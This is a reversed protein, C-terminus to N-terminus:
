EGLEERVNVFFAHAYPARGAPVEEAIFRLDKMIKGTKDMIRPYFLWSVGGSETKLLLVNRGEALEIQVKRESVTTSGGTTKCAAIEKGNLWLRLSGEARFHLVAQRDEPSVITTAAFAIMERLPNSIPDLRPPKICYGLDVYYGAVRRWGIKGGDKGAYTAKFSLGKEPPYMKDFGKNGFPGIVAWDAAVAGSKKVYGLTVEKDRSSWKPLGRVKEPCEIIKEQCFLLREADNVEELVGRRNESDALLHVNNRIRMCARKLAETDSKTYNLLAVRTNAARMRAVTKLIDTKGGAPPEGEVFDMKLSAEGREDYVFDVWAIRNVSDFASLTGGDVGVPYRGPPCYVYLRSELGPLGAAEVSLAKKAFDGKVSMTTVSNWVVEPEQPLPRVLVFDVDHRPPCPVETRLWGDGGVQATRSAMSNVDLLLLKPGAIGLAKANIEFVERSGQKNRNCLTALTQGPRAYLIQWLEEDRRSVFNTYDYHWPHHVQSRKVKFIWLPNHYKKWMTANRHTATHHYLHFSVTGCRRLMQQYIRPSAADTPSNGGVILSFDRGYFLSNFYLDCVIPSPYGANGEGSIVWESYANVSPYSANNSGIIYRRGTKKALADYDKRLQRMANFLTLAHFSHGADCGHAQNNCWDPTNCDLRAGDGAERLVAEIMLDRFFRKQFPKSSWCQQRNEEAGWHAPKGFRHVQESADTSIEWNPAMFIVKGGYKHVDENMQRTHRGSADLNETMDAGLLGMQLGTTWYSPFYMGGQRYERLPYFCLTYTLKDPFKAGVAVGNTGQRNIIIWSFVRAKDKTEVRLYGSKGEEINFMQMTHPPESAIGVRGNGMMVLNLMHKDTYVGDAQPMYSDRWGIWWNKQKEIGGCGLALQDLRHREIGSLKHELGFYGGNRIEGTPNGYTVVTYGNDKCIRYTVSWPFSEEGDDATLSFGGKLILFDKKNIVKLSGNRANNQSFSKGFRKIILNPYAVDGLPTGLIRCRSINCTRKAFVLEATRTRVVVTSGKNKYSFGNKPAAWPDIPLASLLIEGEKLTHRTQIELRDDARKEAEAFCARGAFIGVQLIMALWLWCM